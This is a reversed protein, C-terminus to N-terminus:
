FSATPKPKPWLGAAAATVCGDRGNGTRAGTKRKPIATTFIATILKHGSQKQKQFFCMLSPLFAILSPANHILSPLFTLSPVNLFSSPLASPLFSPLFSPRFSPLVSPLTQAEQRLANNTYRGGDRGGGAEQVAAQSPRGSETVAASM